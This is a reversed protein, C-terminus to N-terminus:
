SVQVFNAKRPIFFVADGIWWVLWHLHFRELLRTILWGFIDITKQVARLSLQIWRAPFATSSSRATNPLPLGPAGDINPQADVSVGYLPGRSRKTRAYIDRLRAFLVEDTLIDTLDLQALTPLHKTQLCCLLFRPESLQTICSIESQGGSGVDVAQVPPSTPRSPGTDSPVSSEDTHSDTSVPASDSTNSTASDGVSGPSRRHIKFLKESVPGYITGGPLRLLDDYYADGGTYDPPLNEHVIQGCGCKWAVGSHRDHILGNATSGALAIPLWLHQALEELVILLKSPGMKRSHITLPQRIESNFPATKETPQEAVTNQLQNQESLTHRVDTREVLPLAELVSNASPTLNLESTVAAEQRDPAYDPFDFRMQASEESGSARWFLRGLDDDGEASPSPAPSAALSAFAFDLGLPAAEQRDPASDPFDFTMQASEESGSARLSLRGPDDVGEASPRPSPNATLGAVASDQGLPALGDVSWMPIPLASHQEDLSRGSLNPDDKTSEVASIAGSVDHPREDDPRSGINIPQAVLSPGQHDSIAAATNDPNMLKSPAFLSSVVPSWTPISYSPSSVFRSGKPGLRPMLLRMDSNSDSSPESRPAHTDTTSPDSMRAGASLLLQIVAEHGKESAINLANPFQSNSLNVDAGAELLLKVMAINHNQTAISLPAPFRSSTPNVDAGAELFLKVMATNNRKTAMSLPAPFHSSTTNIDAGAELLLKVMATNYNQTAISLPAPFHRSPPNVDAGAELLLKMVATNNSQAVISLPNPFHSSGPNVDAGAELLLKMMATNSNQTAISLPNPIHSSGPNVDAGLDLLQKVLAEDNRRVAAQLTTLGDTSRVEADVEIPEESAEPPSKSRSRADAGSYMSAWSRQYAIEPADLSALAAEYDNDPTPSEEPCEVSGRTKLQLDSNSFTEHTGRGRPERRARGLASQPPNRVDATEYADPEM